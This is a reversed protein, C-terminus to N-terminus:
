HVLALFLLASVHHHALTSAYSHITKEVFEHEPTNIREYAPSRLALKGAGESQVAVPDLDPGGFGKSRLNEL